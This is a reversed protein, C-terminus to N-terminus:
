EPWLAGTPASAYAGPAWTPSTLTAGQEELRSNQVGSAAAGTLLCFLFFPLFPDSNEQSVNSMIFVAAILMGVASLRGGRRFDRAFVIFAQICLCLFCLGGAYGYKVASGLFGNHILYPVERPRDTAYFQVEYFDIGYRWAARRYEPSEFFDGLGLPHERLLTLGFGLLKMRGEITESSSRDRIIEAITYDPVATLALWAVVVIAALLIGAVRLSKTLALCSLVVVAFCIWGMRMFTLLVGAGLLSTLAVKVATRRWTLLIIATAISLVIWQWNLERFLGKARTTGSALVDPPGLRLFSDDALSQVIGVVASYCGFIVVATYLARRNREDSVHCALWTFLALLLFRLSMLVVKREGLSPFNYALTVAAALCYATTWALVGRTAGQLRGSTGGLVLRKAVFPLLLALALATSNFHVRIGLFKRAIELAEESDISEIVPGCFLWVSIVFILYRQSAQRSVVYATALSILLYVISFVSM